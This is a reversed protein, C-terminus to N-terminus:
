DLVDHQKHAHKKKNNGKKLDYAKSKGLRRMSCILYVSLQSQSFGPVAPHMSGPPNQMSQDIILTAISMPHPHTVRMYDPTLKGRTMRKAVARSLSCNVKAQAYKFATNCAIFIPEVGLTGLECMRLLKLTQCKATSLFFVPKCEM